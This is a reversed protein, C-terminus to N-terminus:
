EVQEHSSSALSSGSASHALLHHSSASSSSTGAIPRRAQDGAGRLKDSLFLFYNEYLM